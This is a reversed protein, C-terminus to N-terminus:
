YAATDPASKAAEAAQLEEFRKDKYERLTQEIGSLVHYKSRYPDSSANDFLWTIVNFLKIAVNTDIEDETNKVVSNTAAFASEYLEKYQDRVEEIQDGVKESVIDDIDVDEFNSVVSEAERLASMADDIASAIDNMDSYDSYFYNSSM